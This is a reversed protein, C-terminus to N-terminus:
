LYLMPYTATLRQLLKAAKEDEGDRKAQLAALYRAVSADDQHQYLLHLFSMVRDSAEDHQYASLVKRLLAVSPDRSRSFLKSLQPQDKTFLALLAAHLDEHTGSDAPSDGRLVSLYADAKRKLYSLFPQDDTFTASLEKYLSLFPQLADHFRTRDGDALGDLDKIMDCARIEDHLRLIEERIRTNKRAFSLPLHNYSAAIKRYQGDLASFEHGALQDRAKIVLRLLEQYAETTAPDTLHGEDAHSVAQQYYSRASALMRAMEEEHGAPVTALLATFRQYVDQAREHAGHAVADSLAQSLRSLEARKASFLAEHEEKELRALRTSGALIRQEIEKKQSLFGAPLGHFKEQIRRLLPFCPETEKASLHGDLESLLRSIEAETKAFITDADDHYVAMLQRYFRFLSEQLAMREEIFSAPVQQYVAKAKMYSAMADKLRGADLAGKGQELLHTISATATSLQVGYHEQELALLREEADAMREALVAQEERSLTPLTSVQQQLQSLISQAQPFHKDSLAQRYQSFLSETSVATPAEEVADPEQAAAPEEQQVLTPDPPSSGEDTTERLRALLADRVQSDKEPQQLSRKTTKEYIVRLDEFISKVESDIRQFAAVVRQEENKEILSYVHDLLHEVNELRVLFNMNDLAPMDKADTKLEKHITTIDAHITKYFEHAKSFDGGSIYKLGNSFDRDLRVFKDELRETEQAVKQQGGGESQSCLYETTLKYKIFIIGEEDLYDALGEVTKIPLNLADAAEEVTIEGRQKVLEILLDVDTHVMHLDAAM